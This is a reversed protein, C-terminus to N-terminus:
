LVNTVFHLLRVSPPSMGVLVIELHGENMSGAVTQVSTNGVGQLRLWVSVYTIPM